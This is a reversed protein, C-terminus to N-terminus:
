FNCNYNNNETAINRELSFPFKGSPITITTLLWTTTRTGANHHQSKYIFKKKM